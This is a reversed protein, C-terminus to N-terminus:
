KGDAGDEENGEDEEKDNDEEALKDDVSDVEDTQETENSDPQEDMHIGLGTVVSRYTSIQDERSLTKIHAFHASFLDWYNEQLNASRIYKAFHVLQRTIQRALGLQAPVLRRPDQKFVMSIATDDNYPQQALLQLQM